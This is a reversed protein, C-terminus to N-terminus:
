SSLSHQVVSKFYQKLTINGTSVQAVRVRMHESGINATGPTPTAISEGGEDDWLLSKWRQFKDPAISHEM